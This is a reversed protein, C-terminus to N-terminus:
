SQLRIDPTITHFIDGIATLLLDEVSYRPNVVVGSDQVEEDEYMTWEVWSEGNGGQKYKLEIKM